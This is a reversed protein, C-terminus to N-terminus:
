QVGRAYLGILHCWLKLRHKLTIVNSAAGAPIATNVGIAFNVYFSWQNAIVIPYPLDIFFSYGTACENGVGPLRFEMAGCGPCRESDVYVGHCYECIRFPSGPETRQQLSNLVHRQYNKQGIWLQFCLRESLDLVDRPDCNRSFTFMIRSISFAEPPALQRSRYMNTEIYTKGSATEVNTFFESNIPNLVGGAPYEIADYLAGPQVDVENPVHIQGHFAKVISGQLEARRDGYAPPLYQISEHRVGPVTRFAPANQRQLFEKVVGM